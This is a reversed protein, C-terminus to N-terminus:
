WKLLTKSVQNQNFVKCFNDFTFYGLCFCFVHFVLGLGEQMLVTLWGVWCHM